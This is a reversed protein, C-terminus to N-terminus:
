TLVAARMAWLPDSSDRAARVWESTQAGAISVVSSWVTELVCTRRAIRWSSNRKEFRDVYRAIGMVQLREDDKIATASDYMALNARNHRSFRQHTTVFSEVAAADGNIEILINSVIHACQEVGEHHKKVWQMLGERGGKYPGHDDYADPHYAQEMLAWDKRDAGRCYRFLVEQIAQKDLLHQVELTRLQDEMHAKGILFEGASQQFRCLRRLRFAKGDALVRLEDV